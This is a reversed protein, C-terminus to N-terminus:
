GARKMARSFVHAHQARSGLSITPRLRRRRRLETRHRGRRRHGRDDEQGSSEQEEKCGAVHEKRKSKSSTKTSSGTEEDSASEDFTGLEKLLAVAKEKRAEWERMEPDKPVTRKVKKKLRSSDLGEVTSDEAVRLVDSCRYNASQNGM